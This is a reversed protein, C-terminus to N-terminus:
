KAGAISARCEGPKTDERPGEAGCARMWRYWGCEKALLDCYLSQLVAALDPLKRQERWAPSGPTRQSKTNPSHSLCHGVLLTCTYQQM